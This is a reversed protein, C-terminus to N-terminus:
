HSQWGQLLLLPLRWGTSKMRDFPISSYGKVRGGTKVGAVM